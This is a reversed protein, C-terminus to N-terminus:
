RPRCRARHFSSTPLQKQPPLLGTSTARESYIDLGPSPAPGLATAASGELVPSGSTFMTHPCNALPPPPPPPSPFPLPLAAVRVVLANWGEALSITAPTVSWSPGRHRRVHLEPRGVAIKQLTGVHGLM